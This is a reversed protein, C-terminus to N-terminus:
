FPLMEMIAKFAVLAAAAGPVLLIVRKAWRAWDCMVDIHRDVKSILSRLSPRIIRGNDDTEDEFALKELSEIRPILVHIMRRYEGRTIPEDDGAQPVFDDHSSDDNPQVM